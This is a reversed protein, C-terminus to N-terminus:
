RRKKKFINDAKGSAVGVAVLGIILTVGLFGKYDRWFCAASPDACTVWAWNKQCDSPCSLWDENGECVQNYNCDLTTLNQLIIIPESAGGGGGGGGPTGGGTTSIDTSIGVSANYAVNGNIDYCWSKQWELNYSSSGTPTYTRCLFDGTHSTTTLNFTPTTLDSKYMGFICYDVTGSDTANVCFTGASGLPIITPNVSHNTVVPPDSDDITVSDSQWESCNFLDCVSANVIWLEGGSTNSASVKTLNELDTQEVGGKYWKTWNSVWTDDEDDYYTITANLDDDPSPTAISFEVTTTPLSKNIYISFNASYNLNNSSDNLTHYYVCFSINKTYNLTVAQSINTSYNSIRQVSIPIVGGESCNWSIVSSDVIIDDLVTLNLLLSDNKKPYSNNTSQSSYNPSHVDNYHLGNNIVNLKGATDSHFLLPITCNVNNEIVCGTCDCSGGNQAATINSSLNGTINIGSYNKDFSWGYAAGPSGVFLYPNVPYLTWNIGDEFVENTPTPNYIISQYTAGDFCFPYMRQTNDNAIKLVIKDSYADFCNAPIQGSTVGFWGKITWIAGSINSPKSYNIYFEGDGVHSAYTDWNGDWENEPNTWGSQALTGTALGGCESTENFTEQYCVSKGEGTINLTFNTVQAWRSVTVYVTKNENGSFNLYQTPAQNSFKDQVFEAALTATLLMIMTMTTISTLRM